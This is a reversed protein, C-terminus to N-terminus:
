RADAQPCEYWSDTQQQNMILECHSNLYTVITDRHWSDIHSTLVTITVYAAFAAVIIVLITQFLWKIASGRQTQSANM